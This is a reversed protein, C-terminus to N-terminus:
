LNYNFSIYNHHDTLFYDSREYAYHIDIDVLRLSVGFTLKQHRKSTYDLQQKYGMLLDMFAFFPPTYLIGCSLLLNEQGYKLQPIFQFARYPYMLTSSIYFPLAESKGNSYSVHSHPLLNQTFVSLSYLHTSHVLGVDFNIGEGRYKEFNISYYSYSAGISTKPSLQTQYSLKLTSNKFDFYSDTYITQSSDNRRKTKPLNTVSSEYIGIGVTGFPTKGSMSLNYYNIEEMFTTSFVSMSYGSTKSLNAPNSFVADSGASYGEINGLAISQASSGIDTLLAFDVANSFSFLSSLISILTIFYKM